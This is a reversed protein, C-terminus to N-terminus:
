LVGGKSAPRALFSNAISEVKGLTEEIRELKAICEARHQTVLDIVASHKFAIHGYFKGGSRMEASILECEKQAIAYDCQSIEEKMKDVMSLLQSLTFHNNM